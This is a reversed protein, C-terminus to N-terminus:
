THVRYVKENENENKSENANENQDENERLTESCQPSHRKSQVALFTGVVASM